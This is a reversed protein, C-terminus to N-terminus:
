ADSTEAEDGDANGADKADGGEESVLNEVEDRVDLLVAHSRWFM